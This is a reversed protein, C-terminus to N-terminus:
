RALGPATNSGEDEPIGWLDGLSKKSEVELTKGLEPFFGFFCFM